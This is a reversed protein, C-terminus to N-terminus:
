VFSWLQRAKATATSPQARSCGAEAGIELSSWSGAREALHDGTSQPGDVAMRQGLLHTGIGEALSCSPSVEQLLMKLLRTEHNKSYNLGVCTRLRDAFLYATTPRLRQRMSLVMQEFATTCQAKM